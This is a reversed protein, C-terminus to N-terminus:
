HGYVENFNRLPLSLSGSPLLNLFGRLPHFPLAPLTARRLDCPGPPRRSCFRHRLHIWVVLIRLTLGAPPNVRTLVLRHCALLLFPTSITWRLPCLRPSWLTCYGRSPPVWGFLRLLQFRWPSQVGMHRNANRLHRLSLFSPTSSFSTRGGNAPHVFFFLSSSVLLKARSLPPAPEFLVHGPVSSPM